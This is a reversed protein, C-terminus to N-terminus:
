FNFRSAIAYQTGSIGSAFDEALNTNERNEPLSVLTQLMACSTGCGVSGAPSDWITLKQFDNSFQKWNSQCRFDDLYNDTVNARFGSRNTSPGVPKACTTALV